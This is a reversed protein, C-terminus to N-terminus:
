VLKGTLLDWDDIEWAIFKLGSHAPCPSLMSSVTACSGCSSEGLSYHADALEQMARANGSQRATSAATLAHGPFAPALPLNIAVAVACGPVAPDVAILNAVARGYHPEQKGDKDVDHHVVRTSIPAFWKIGDYISFALQISRMQWAASPGATV